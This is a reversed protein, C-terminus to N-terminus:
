KESEEVLLQLTSSTILDGANEIKEKVLDQLILASVIRKRDNEDDCHFKIPFKNM